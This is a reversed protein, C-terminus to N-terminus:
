EDDEQDIRHGCDVPGSTFYDLECFSVLPFREEILRNCLFNCRNLASQKQRTDSGIARAFRERAFMRRLEARTFKSADTDRGKALDGWAGRNRSRGKPPGYRRVPPAAAEGRADQRSEPADQAWLCLQEFHPSEAM